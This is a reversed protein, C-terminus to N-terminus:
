RALSAETRGVPRIMYLWAPRFGLRGYLRGADSNGAILGVVQDRIGRSELERDALAMLVSGLGRNRQNADVVLVHIEGM